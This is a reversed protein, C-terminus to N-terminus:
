ITLRSSNRWSNLSLSFLEGSNVDARALWAQEYFASNEDAVRPPRRSRFRQLLTRWSVM